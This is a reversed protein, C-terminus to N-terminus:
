QYYQSGRINDHKPLHVLPTVPHEQILDLGKALINKLTTYDSANYSLARQCANILREQGYRKLLDRVGEHMRRAQHYYENESMMHQMYKEVAPDIDAGWEVAHKPEWETVYRHSPPMHDSLTTYKHVEKSRKHSAIQVGNYYIYLMTDTALVKVKKHIYVHPVSYSHKDKKFYIHYFKNVTLRYTSTLEYRGMTLPSLTKKEFEEYLNLRSYDRGQFNKSNAISLYKRVETNLADLGEPLENRLPAFIETYVVNIINEVLAKDTPTVPRTPCVTTKYHNVMSLFTDNLVAQFRSATTVGSKLNDPILVKPVGGFYHIANSVGCVYDELKQSERAEVYFYQSGGLIVVLVEAETTIQRNLCFYSLKSGTFDIFLEEGYEHSLLMSAKQSKLWQQYHYCMQSYSYGGPRKRRYEDWLVYRTVGVRSLEKKFYPFQSTLYSYEENNEWDSRQKTFLSSLEIDSMSLLTDTSYGLSEKISLYHVITKRHVKLRKAIERQSVGQDTLQLIQKVKSMTILKGAM